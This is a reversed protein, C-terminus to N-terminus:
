HSLLGVWAGAERVKLQGEAFHALGSLANELTDYHGSTVLSGWSSTALFSGDQGPAPRITVTPGAGMRFGGYTEWQGDKRIAERVSDLFEEPPLVPGDTWTQYRFEFDM